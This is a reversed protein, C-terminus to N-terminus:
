ATGGVFTGGVATGGVATGGVGTGGVAAGCDADDCDAAAGFVWADCVGTAGVATGAVGVFTGAAAVADPTDGVAMGDPACALALWATADCTDGVLEGAGVTVAVLAGAAEAVVVDFEVPEGPAVA